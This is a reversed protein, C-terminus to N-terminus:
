NTVDFLVDVWPIRSEYGVMGVHLRYTGAPLQSAAHKWVGNKVVNDMDYEITPIGINTSYTGASTMDWMGPGGECAAPYEMVVNMGSYVKYGIRCDSPFELVVPEDSEKEFVLAASVWLGVEVSPQQLRVTFDVPLKEVPKVPDSESCGMLQACVLAIFIGTRTRM